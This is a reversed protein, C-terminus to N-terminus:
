NTWIEYEYKWCCSCLTRLNIWRDLQKVYQRVQGFYGTRGCGRSETAGTSREALFIHFTNFISFILPFNYWLLLFLYWQSFTVWCHSALNFNMKQLINQVWQSNSERTNHFILWYRSCKSGGQEGPRDQGGHDAQDSRQDKQDLEDWLGITIIM